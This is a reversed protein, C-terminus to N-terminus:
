FVEDTVMILKFPIKFGIKKAVAANFAIKPTSQFEQTLERPATGKLCKLINDAGFRGINTEDMVSVTMLAGNEVEINGLQSFVPIKNEYFPIFLESLKNSELSAITVFMADVQAALKNYAEGVEKYYQQYDEPRLPEDVHYRVIEFGKEAALEEVENVASYVKAVDSKEYVM